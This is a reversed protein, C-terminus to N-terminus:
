LYLQIQKIIQFLSFFYSAVRIHLYKPFKFDLLIIIRLNFSASDEYDSFVQKRCDKIGCAKRSGVVALKILYLVWRVYIFYIFYYLLFSRSQKCFCSSVEPNNAFVVWKWYDLIIVTLIRRVTHFCSACFGVVMGCHKQLSIQGASYVSWHTWYRYFFIM